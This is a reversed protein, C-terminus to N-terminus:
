AIHDLVLGEPGTMDSLAADPRDLWRSGLMAERSVAQQGTYLAEAAQPFSQLRRSRM